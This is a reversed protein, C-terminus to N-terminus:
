EAILYHDTNQLQSTAALLVSVDRSLMQRMFGVLVADGQLGDRDILESPDAFGYIQDLEWFRFGAFPHAGGKLMQYLICGLAFIDVKEDSPQRSILEPAM